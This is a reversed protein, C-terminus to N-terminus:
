GAMAPAPQPSRWNSHPGGLVGQATIYGAPKGPLGHLQAKANIPGVPQGVPGLTGSLDATAALDDTPGSVRGQVQVAGALTPLASTLDPLALQWDFALKDAGVSGTGSATIKRGDIKLRSVTVNSGTAAASVTLHAAGGILAPVPAMGGTIGVTGNANLRTTGDQLAATLDLVAHGQLDLGALAALPALNSLDLKVRGQLRGATAADGEATILPNALSFRIPRSPQDLRMEATIQVPAAALLDPHPGPIRIGALTAQLRVAGANGQVKAIIRAASAGAGKLMDVDLTGSVAPRVFPGDVKADLAISQWSLDPRPTMAPATATVALDAAQHELDVTGQAAARLAGAALALKVVVATRPGNLAGDVSLPGLDPLGAIRSILGHSPEQGTVRIHLNAPDLRADLRYKGATDVGEAVLVIHGQETVSIAASGDLALSAATGTVAAAIDLRAVHM